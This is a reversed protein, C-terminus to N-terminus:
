LPNVRNQTACEGFVTFVVAQASAECDESREEEDKSRVALIGNAALTPATVLSFVRFILFSVVDNGDGPFRESKRKLSPQRDAM